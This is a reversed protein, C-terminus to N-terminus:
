KHHVELDATLIRACSPLGDNELIELYQKAIGDGNEVARAYWHRASDAEPRGGQGLVYMDGLKKQAYVYGNEAAKLLWKRAENFDQPFLDGEGNLYTLAIIVQCDNNGQEAADLFLELAIEIDHEPGYGLMTLLGLMPMAEPMESTHYNRLIKYATKYDRKEFAKIGKEYGIDIIKEHSFIENKKSVAPYFNEKEGKKVEPMDGRALLVAAIEEDERSGEKASDLYLVAAKELNQEVGLGFLYMYGLLPKVVTFRYNSLLAYATDYDASDFAKLGKGYDDSAAPKSQIKPNSYTEPLKKESPQSKSQNEQKNKSTLVLYFFADYNKNCNAEIHEPTEMLCARDSCVGTRVLKDKIKLCSALNKMFDNENNYGTAVFEDNKINNFLKEAYSNNQLFFITIIVFIIVSLKIKRYLIIVILKM